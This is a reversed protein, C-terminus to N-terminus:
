LYLLRGMVYHCRYIITGKQLSEEICEDNMGEEETLSHFLSPFETRLRSVGNFNLHANSLLAFSIFKKGLCKM